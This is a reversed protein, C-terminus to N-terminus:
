RCPLAFIIRGSIHSVSVVTQAIYGICSSTPHDLPGYNVTRSTSANGYGHKQLANFTVIRLWQLLHLIPPNSSAHLKHVTQDVVVLFLYM